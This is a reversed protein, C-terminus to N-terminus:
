CLVEACRSGLQHLGFFQLQSPLILFNYTQIKSATYSLLELRNACYGIKAISFETDQSAHM